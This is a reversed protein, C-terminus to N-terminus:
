QMQLSRKSADPAARNAKVDSTSTANVNTTADSHSGSSCGVVISSLCFLLAVYLAIRTINMTKSRSRTAIAERLIGADRAVM